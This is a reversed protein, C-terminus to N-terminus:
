ICVFSIKMHFATASLRAKMILNMAVRFHGIAAPYLLVQVFFQVPLHAMLTPNKATVIQPLKTHHKCTVWNDTCMVYMLM